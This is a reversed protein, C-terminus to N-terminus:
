GLGLGCSFPSPFLSFGELVLLGALCWDLLSGGHTFSASPALVFLGTRTLVLWFSGLSIIGESFSFVGGM